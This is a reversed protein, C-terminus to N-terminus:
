QNGEMAQLQAILAAHGALNADTGSLRQGTISIVNPGAIDPLSEVLPQPDELSEWRGIWATVSDPKGRHEAASTASEVMLDIGLREVQIRIREWDTHKRIDWAVAGLGAASLARALPRLRDPVGGAREAMGAATTTGENSPVVPAPRSPTGNSVANRFGEVQSSSQNALDSEQTTTDGDHRTATATTGSEPEDPVNTVANSTANRAAAEAAARAEREAKKRDRFAQQRAANAAREAQVHAKDPNYVLYDHIMWGSNIPDWLGAAELEKAAVKLGRVRAVVALERTLIRGETLNASSWCLASIYLRFARDSLLSVKRNDPFHDDIKVWPM